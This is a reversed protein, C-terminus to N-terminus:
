FNLQSKIVEPEQPESSGTQNIQPTITVDDDADGSVTDLDDSTSEKQKPKIIETVVHWIQEPKKTILNIDVFGCPLNDDFTCTGNLVDPDTSFVFDVPFVSDM